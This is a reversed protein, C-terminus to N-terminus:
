LQSSFIQPIGLERPYFNSAYLKRCSLLPSLPGGDTRDKYLGDASDIAWLEDSYCIRQRGKGTCRKFGLRDAKKVFHFVNGGIAEEFILRRIEPPLRTFFDSQAQPDPASSSLPVHVDSVSNYAEKELLNQHQGALIGDSTKYKLCRRRCKLYSQRSSNLLKLLAIAHEPM